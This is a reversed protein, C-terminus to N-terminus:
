TLVFNVSVWLMRLAFWIDEDPMEDGDWEFSNLADFRVAVKQILSSVTSCGAGCCIVMKRVHRAIDPCRFLM